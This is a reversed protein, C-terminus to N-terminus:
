LVTIATPSSGSDPNGQRSWCVYKVGSTANTPVIRTVPAISRGGDSNVASGLGLGQTRCTPNTSGLKLNYAVNAEPLNSGGVQFSDGPEVTSTSVNTTSAGGGAACAFAVAQFGLFTALVAAPVAVWARRDRRFSKM